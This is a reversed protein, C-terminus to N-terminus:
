TKSELYLYVAYANKRNAAEFAVKDEFDSWDIQDYIDDFPEMEEVGEALNEILFNLYKYTLETSEQIDWSHLGHGPVINEIDMNRITDIAEVWKVVDADGVFPLRGTFILDGIFSTKDNISTLAMDGESHVKGFINIKFKHNGLTFERDKDIVLDPTIIKTHDDVWPYLSTKRSELLEYADESDIYDYSGKPAWIEAGLNKFVQLGYIHDAHYHSVIVKKIPLDSIKKIEAVMKRALAPTGLSDFVVIGESTVVFGANSIFGEFETATGANGRIYYADGDIREAEFDVSIAGGFSDNEEAVSNTTIIAMTLFPLIIHKTFRNM